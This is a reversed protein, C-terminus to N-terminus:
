FGFLLRGHLVQEEYTEGYRQMERRINSTVVSPKGEEKKYYKKMM